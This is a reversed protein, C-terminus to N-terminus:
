KTKTTTQKQNKKGWIYIDRKKGKSKYQSNKIEVYGHHPKKEGRMSVNLGEREEKQRLREYGLCQLKHKEQRIGKRQSKMKKQTGGQKKQWHGGREIRKQPQM